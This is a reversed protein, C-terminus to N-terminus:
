GKLPHVILSYTEGYWVDTGNTVRAQIKFTGEFNFDGAVTKYRFKSTGDIVSGVWSVAASSTPKWVEMTVDLGTLDVIAAGLSQVDVTFTIGVSGKYIKSM